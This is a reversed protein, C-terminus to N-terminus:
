DVVGSHRRRAFCCSGPRFLPLHAAEHQGQQWLVEGLHAAVEADAFDRYARELYHRAADLNGRRYEVWGMSDLIAPNDPETELARQIYSAARDYDSGHNAILYGLANLARADDPERELVTELDQKAAQIDGLREYAMSRGYLLETSDPRRSTPPTAVYVIEVEPDDVSKTADLANRLLDGDTAKRLFTAELM